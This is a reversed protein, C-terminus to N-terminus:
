SEHSLGVSQSALQEALYDALEAPTPSSWIVMPPLRIGLVEDLEQSIELATLSDIGLEAFSTTPRLAGHHLGARHSIWMILWPELHSKLEAPTADALRALFRPELDLENLDMSEDSDNIWQACVALEGSEFQERCRARQVKGSSTIPLSVPQILVIAHPDIEHESVIAYRIARLLEDGEVRRFERRLQLVVVLQEGREGGTAFAAGLELAEDAQQATREIDQPYHNRGRIIIVDKLRGTVFLENQWLFGLDGTRLYSATKSGNQHHNALKAQFMAQCEQGRNWYGPSVSEGRVWIEGVQDESCIEHTRPDVIEVALSEYAPGCGVLRRSKGTSPAGTAVRHNGLQQPDVDLLLPGERRRGGTAFLTVEALGYCPLYSSPEFGAGAFAEAFEALTDANIPEAGCFATKWHRLDLHARDEDTTKRVALDYGFNPSGSIAARTESLLELWRIPKRLFTAPSILYTTGAVFMPMLISGVLGMDHYAPLWFVGVVPQDSDSVIGFAEGILGLNHLVNSHSIMVGRPEATSGSTYQLFAMDDATRAVPTLTINEDTPIEDTCQWSIESLASSLQDFNLSALVASQTLVLRPSCDTVIADLRPSPRRPKPQTSPVPVVGAYVCGMFAAIFELGPPYVLLARDGPSTCDVLYAALCRARRDLQGYTWQQRVRNEDEFVFAVRDPFKQACQCLIDALTVPVKSRATQTGHM